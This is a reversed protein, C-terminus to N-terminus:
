SNRHCVEESTDLRPNGLGLIRNVIIVWEEIDSPTLDVLEYLDAITFFQSEEHRIEDGTDKASRALFVIGDEPNIYIEAEIRISRSIRGSINIQAEIDIESDDPDSYEFFDMVEGIATLHYGRDALRVFSWLISKITDIGQRDYQM